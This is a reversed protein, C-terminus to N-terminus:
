LFFYTLSNWVFEQWANLFDVRTTTFCFVSMILFVFQSKRPAVHTISTKCRSRPRNRRKSINSGQVRWSTRASIGSRRKGPLVEPTYISETAHTNGSHTKHVPLPSSIERGKDPTQAINSAKLTMFHRVTSFFSHYQEADYSTQPLM